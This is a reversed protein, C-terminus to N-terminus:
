VTKYLLPSSRERVVSSSEAKKPHSDAQSQGTYLIVIHEPYISCEFEIRDIGPMSSPYLTTTTAAVSVGDDSFVGQSEVRDEESSSSAISIHLLMPEYAKILFGGNTRARRQNWM